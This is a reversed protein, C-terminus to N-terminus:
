RPAYAERDLETVFISPLGEPSGVAYGVAEGAGSAVLGALLPLVARLPGGGRRLDRLARRLRLLPIAPSGVTYVARRWAPWSASRDNAFTRGAGFREGLWARRDTVNLHASRAGPEVFFRAGNSRLLQFFLYPMRMQEGLGARHPELLATRVGANQGPMADAEGRQPRLFPGYDLVLNAWSLGTAPNANVIQPGIADWTGADFADMFARAWGPQPYCHTEGVVALPASSALLGAARAEHMERPDAEVVRVGWFRERAIAPIEAEVELPGALVLEIRGAEEQELLCGVVREVHRWGGCPIVYSLAPTV